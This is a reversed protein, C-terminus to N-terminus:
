QLHNIKHSNFKMVKNLLKKVIKFKVKKMTIIIQFSLVKFIKQKKTVKMILNYQLKIKLNKNYKNNKYSLFFSKIIIQYIMIMWIKMMKQKFFLIIKKIIIIQKTKNKFKNNVM